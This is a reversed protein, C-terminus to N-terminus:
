NKDNEFEELKEVLNVDDSSSEEQSNTPKKSNDSKSTKEREKAKMDKINQAADKFERGVTSGINRLVKMTSKRANESKDWSDKAFDRGKKTYNVTKDYAGMAGEVTGSKVDEFTKGVHELTEGTARVTRKVAHVGSKVTDVSDRVHDGMTPVYMDTPRVGERFRSNGDYDRGYADFRNNPSYHRNHYRGSNGYNGYGQNGYGQNGYDSYGNYNNYGGHSSYGRNEGIFKNGRNYQREQKLRYGEAKRRRKEEKYRLKEEKRRYKEEKKRERRERWGSFGSSDSHSSIRKGSIILILTAVIVFGVLLTWRNM